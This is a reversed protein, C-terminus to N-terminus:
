LDSAHFFKFTHIQLIFRLILLLLKLFLNKTHNKLKQLQKALAIM